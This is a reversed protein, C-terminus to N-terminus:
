HISLLRNITQPLIAKHDKRVPLVRFELPVKLDQQEPLAKHDRFEKPVKHEQL